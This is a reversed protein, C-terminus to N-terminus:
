APDWGHGGWPNCRGIRWLGRPVGRLVGYKRVADIMYASCTPQFRCERGIWPSLTVQYLRVLVVVGEAPLGVVTRWLGM